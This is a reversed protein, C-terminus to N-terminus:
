AHRDLMVLATEAGQTNVQFVALVKVIFVVQAVQGNDAAQNGLGGQTDLCFFLVAFPQGPFVYLKFFLERFFVLNFIDNAVAAAHLLNELHQVPHRIGIGSHQQAAFRAGTFGQHGPREM